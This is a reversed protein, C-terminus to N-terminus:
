REKNEIQQKSLYRYYDRQDKLDQIRIYAWVIGINAAIWSIMFLYEWGAYGWYLQDM